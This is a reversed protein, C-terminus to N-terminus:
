VNLAEISAELRLMSIHADSTGTFRQLRWNRLAGQQFWVIRKNSQGITGASVFKEQSWNEGDTSYATSITPNKGLEVRGTLSVLELQHIVAGRSENYIISTGFQWTIIQGYHTSISDDLYGHASSTPDGCLWKNYCWVFNRARYQGVNTIGSVLKFWVPTQLANSAMGDYVWTRDPLHIYLFQHSKSGRSEMVVNALQAETYSALEYDIEQTSLKTCQGNAGIWIANDEHRGGGLFAVADMYVACAQTGIAGRQIQAGEIREFPFLEGGVNDFVEITHRNLAYIENRLKLLAVVPDPDAESSGYKLPNVSLPNNLETVVLYQGDTTMFYGDVWVVDVVTGLDVDTVQVFTTGNYYYLAGSSAVALRDFSYDFTVQGSGGVDGIVTYAGVSDISVLKTGMVRYCLGNWEIGGRDVGTGSGFQTIGDAQRYYGNSVGNEKPVPILNQPYLTRVNPAGDTYIGNLIPIQM